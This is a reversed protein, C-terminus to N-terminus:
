DQKLESFSLDMLPFKEWGQYDFHWWENPNVTFGFAEMVGILQNRHAKLSDPLATYRPGAKESFDDFLTPM